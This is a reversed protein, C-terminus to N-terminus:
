YVKGARPVMMAVGVGGNVSRIACRSAGMTYILTNVSAVPLNDGRGVVQEERATCLRKAAQAIQPANPGVAGRSEKLFEIISSRVANQWLLNTHRVVSLEIVGRPNKVQEPLVAHTHGIAGLRAAAIVARIHVRLHQARHVAPQQQAVPTVEISGLRAH